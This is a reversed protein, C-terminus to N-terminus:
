DMFDEIKEQSMEAANAVSSAAVLAARYKIM